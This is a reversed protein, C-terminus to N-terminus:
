GRSRRRRRGRSRPCPTTTSRGGTSGPPEPPASTPPTPTPTGDAGAKPDSMVLDLSTLVFLRAVDGVSMRSYIRSADERTFGPEAKRVALFLLEKVGDVSRVLEDAEPTGILPKPQRAIEMACRFLFQQQATNYRGPNRGIEANALDFPDAFRADVWVQLEGLDAVMLPSFAHEEGGMRVTRATGAATAADNHM